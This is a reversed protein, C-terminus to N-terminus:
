LETIALEVTTTANQKTIPSYLGGGVPVHFSTDIGYSYIYYDGNRLNSFQCTVVGNACTCTTSDDYSAPTNQANYKIYVECTDINKSISHHQPLIILTASGGKGASPDAKKVCSASMILILAPVLFLDIRKKM